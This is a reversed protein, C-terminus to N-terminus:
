LSSSPQTDTYNRTPLTRRISYPFILTLIQYNARKKMICVEHLLEIFTPSYNLCKEICIRLHWLLNRKRARRVSLDTPYEFFSSVIWYNIHDFGQCREGLRFQELCFLHRSPGYSQVPMNSSIQENSRPRYRYALLKSREYSTPHMSRLSICRGGTRSPASGEASAGVRGLGDARSRVVGVSSEMDSRGYAESM